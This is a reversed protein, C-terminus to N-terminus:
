TSAASLYVRVRKEIISRAPESRLSLVPAPSRTSPLAAKASAKVINLALVGSFSESAACPQIIL